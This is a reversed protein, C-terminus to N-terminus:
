PRPGQGGMRYCREIAKKERETIARQKRLRTLTTTVCKNVKPKMRPQRAECQALLDAITCGPSVLRNTVGSDCTDVVVASTLISDPCADSDDAAGDGDRDAGLKLIFGDVGGAATVDHTGAGPDLDTTGSFWGAAHFNGGADVAAGALWLVRLQEEWVLDGNVDFKSVLINYDSSDSVISVAFVTGNADIAADWGSSADPARVWVFEGNGDLKSVFARRGWWFAGLTSTGPGPDFEAEQVFEGVNYVNGIADVAVRATSEPM